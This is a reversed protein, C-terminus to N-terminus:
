GARIGFSALMSSVQALPLGVVNSYSGGIWPIFREAIGQIGYGGAKGQWQGSAIYSAIEADSLRVMRLKTEVVVQRKRVGQQVCVATFVRHRRGSLQKLCKKATAEDDAKPLIKHGCVVVTDAALVVSEPHKAAVIAAKEQAMRKAYAMPAESKAPTEDIDAAVVETPSLGIQQLLQLRRPSASALIFHPKSM